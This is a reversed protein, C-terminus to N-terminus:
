WGIAIYLVSDLILMGFVIIISFQDDNSLPQAINSWTMGEGSSELTLATNLGLGVCTNSILCLAVKGASDCM